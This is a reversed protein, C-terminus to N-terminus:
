GPWSGMARGEGKSGKEELGNKEQRVNLQCGGKSFRSHSFCVFYTCTSEDTLRDETHTHRHGGCGSVAEM